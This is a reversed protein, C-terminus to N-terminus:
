RGLGGDQGGFVRSGVLAVDLLKEIFVLGGGGGLGLEDVLKGVGGPTEVADREEFGFQEGASRGVSQAGEGGESQMALAEGALELFGEVLEAGDLGPAALALLAIELVGGGQEYVMLVFSDRPIGGM